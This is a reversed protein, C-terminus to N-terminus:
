CGEGHVVALDSGGGLVLIENDPFHEGLRDKTETIKTNTLREATKFVLTDGPRLNLAGVANVGLDNLAEVKERLRNIIQEARELDSTDAHIQVTAEAIPTGMM